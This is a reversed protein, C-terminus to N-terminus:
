SFQCLFWMETGGARGRVNGGSEEMKRKNMRRVKSREGGGALSEGNGPKKSNAAQDGMGTLSSLDGRQILTMLM